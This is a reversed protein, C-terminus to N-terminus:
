FINKILDKFGESTDTDLLSDVFDEEMLNESLRALLRLHTTDEEEDPVALAVILKVPKNDLSEWEVSDMLKIVSISPKLVEEIKAHPIAIGDGFGTTSTRERELMGQYYAEASSVRDEKYMIESIIKLTEEKTSTKINLKILNENILDKNSM